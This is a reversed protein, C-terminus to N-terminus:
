APCIMPQTVQCIFLFKLKFEPNDETEGCRYLRRSGNTDIGAGIRWYASWSLAFFIVTHGFM